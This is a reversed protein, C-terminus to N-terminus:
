QDGFKSTNEIAIFYDVMESKFNSFGRSSISVEYDNPLLKLNDSRFIIEFEKSTDGVMISYSDSGPTEPDRAELFINGDRGVIIMHNVSLINMAKVSDTYQKNELTFQVDITPLAVDYSKPSTILSENAYSYKIKTKKSLDSIILDRERFEVVPDNSLSLVSLLKSIDYIGCQIPFEDEVTARAFISRNQSITALRNGPKILISQNIENFNKLIKLTNASFKMIDNEM